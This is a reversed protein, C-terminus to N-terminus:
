LDAYQHGGSIHMTDDEGVVMGKGFAIQKSNQLLQMFEAYQLKADGNSDYYNFLRVTDDVSVCIADRDLGKQHSQGSDTFGARQLGKRFELLSIFGSEDLDMRKFMNKMEASREFLEDRLQQLVTNDTMMRFRLAKAGKPDFNSNDGAEGMLLKQRAEELERAEAADKVEIARREARLRKREARRRQKREEEESLKKVVSPRHFTRAPPAEVRQPLVPVVYEIYQVQSPPANKAVVEPEGGDNGWIMKMLMWTPLAKEKEQMSKTHMWEGFYHVLSSTTKPEFEVGIATLGSELNALRIRGRDQGKLGLGRMFINDMGGQRLRKGVRGLLENISLLMSPDLPPLTEEVPEEVPEEHEKIADKLTGNPNLRGGGLGGSGGSGGIPRDYDDGLALARVFEWCEITGNHDSDIMMFLRHLRGIRGTGFGNSWKIKKSMNISWDDNPTWMELWESFEVYDLEGNVDLDFPDMLALIQNVQLTVGWNALQNFLEQPSVLGSKDVDIKLFLEHAGDFGHEYIKERILPLLTIVSQLDDKGSALVAAARNHADELSHKQGELYGVGKELKTASNSSSATAATAATAAAQKVPTKQSQTASNEEATTAMVSTLGMKLMVDELGAINMMKGKGGTLVQFLHHMPVNEESLRVALEDMVQADTMNDPDPLDKNETYGKSQEIADLHRAASRPTLAAAVAPTTTTLTPKATSVNKSPPPAAGGFDLLASTFEDISLTGNGDHDFLQFCEQLTEVSMGYGLEALACNFEDQTVHGDKDTDWKAFSIRLSLEKEFVSCAIQQVLDLPQAM